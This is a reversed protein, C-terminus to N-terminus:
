HRFNIRWWSYGRGVQGQIHKKGEENEKSNSNGQFSNVDQFYVALKCFQNLGFLYILFVHHGYKLGLVYAWVVPEFCVSDWKNLTCCM